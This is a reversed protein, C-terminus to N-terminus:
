LVGYLSEGAVAGNTTQIECQTAKKPAMRKMGAPKIRHVFGTSLGASPTTRTSWARM